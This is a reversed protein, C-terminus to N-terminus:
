FMMTLIKLCYSQPLSYLVQWVAEGAEDCGAEILLPDHFPFLKM